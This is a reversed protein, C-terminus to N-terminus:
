SNSHPESPGALDKIIDNVADRFKVVTEINMMTQHKRGSTDTLRLFMLNERLNTESNLATCTGADMRAYIIDNTDAQEQTSEKQNEESSSM